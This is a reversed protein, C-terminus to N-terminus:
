NMVICGSIVMNCNAGQGNSSYAGDPLESIYQYSSNNNMSGYLHGDICFAVEPFISPYTPTPGSCLQVPEGLVGDLGALGQQGQPGVAGQVGNAGQEGPTGNEIMAQSGDPCMILAGVQTKSVSCPSAEAFSEQQPACSTLGVCLLIGLFILGVFVFLEKTDNSM